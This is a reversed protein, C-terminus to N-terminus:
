ENRKNREEMLLLLFAVMAFCLAISAQLTDPVDEGTAEEMLVTFAELVGLGAVLLKLQSLLARSALWAAVSLHTDTEPDHAASTVDDEFRSAAAGLDRATPYREDLGAIHVAETAKRMMEALAPPPYQGALQESIQALRIAPLELTTQEIIQQVRPQPFDRAVQSALQSADINLKAIRNVDPYARALRAVTENIGHQDHLQAAPRIARQLQELARRTPEFPDPVSPTAM